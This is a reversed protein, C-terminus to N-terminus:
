FFNFFLFLQWFYAPTRCPALKPTLAGSFTFAGGPGRARGSKCVAPAGAQVGQMGCIRGRVLRALISATRSPAATHLPAGSRARIHRQAAHPLLLTNHPAACQHCDGCGKRNAGNHREARGLAMRQLLCLSREGRPARPRSRLLLREPLLYRREPSDFWFPRKAYPRSGTHVREDTDGAIRAGFVLVAGSEPIPQQKVCSAGGHRHVVPAVPPVQLLMVERFEPPERPERRSERPPLPERPSPPPEELPVCVKQHGCAHACTGMCIRLQHMLAHSTCVMGPVQVPQLRGRQQRGRQPQAQPLRRARAVRALQELAPRRRQPRARPLLQARAGAVPPM